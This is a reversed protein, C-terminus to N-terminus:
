LDIKEKRRVKKLVVEHTALQLTSIRIIYIEAIKVGKIDIKNGKSIILNIFIDRVM